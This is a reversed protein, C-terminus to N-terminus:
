VSLDHRSQRESFLHKIPCAPNPDNIRALRQGTCVVVEIPLLDVEPELRRNTQIVRDDIPAARLSAVERGDRDLLQVRRMVEVRREVHRHADGVAGGAPRAEVQQRDFSRVLFPQRPTVPDSSRLTTTPLVRSESSRASAAILRVTSCGAQSLINQPSRSNFFIPNKDNPCQVSEGPECTREAASESSWDISSATAASSSPASPAYKRTCWKARWNPEGKGSSAARPARVRVISIPVATISM